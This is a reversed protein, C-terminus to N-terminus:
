WLLTSPLYKAILQEYYPWVDSTDIPASDKPYLDFKQFLSVWKMLKRDKKDWLHRYEKETHIVYASHYRIVYLAEEPLSCGNGELVQYLYEDHGWTFTVANLGCGPHYIGNKKSYVPHRKDPNNALFEPLVIKPSFACGLPYTDGVTAWQPQKFLVALIKGFDHILGLLPLWEPLSPNHILAERAAEGTQLAHQSQSYQTDPDSADKFGTLLKFVEAISMKQKLRNGYSVMQERAFDLTQRRHHTEYFRRTAPDTYRRFEEPRKRGASAM